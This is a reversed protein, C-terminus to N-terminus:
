PQKLQWVLDTSGPPGAFRLTLSKTTEGVLPTGDARKRPFRIRWGRSFDDVYPYMAPEVSRRPRDPKVEIPAVEHGADDVLVIRWVLKKQGLENLEFRHAASEVHFEWVEAIEAELRAREIPTQEAGVRFLELHKAIFASRFEPSHLTARIILDSDFDRRVIGTRTWRNIQKWYEDAVLPQAPPALSVVLPAGCAALCGVAVLLGLARRM